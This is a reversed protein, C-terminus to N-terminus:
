KYPGKEKMELLSQEYKDGQIYQGKVWQTFAALGRSFDWESQFGLEQRIKLIDAFNHRIDGLRYNGSARLPVNIGYNRCLMKGDEFINIDKGNKIRISFISLVGTYPNSLSAGPGYVNQYRFAVAAIGLAKGITLVMQEQNQKTIGYVSAPHLISDETTSLYQVKQHCIPCKCSYDGKSM